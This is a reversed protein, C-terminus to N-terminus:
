VAIERLVFAVRRNLDDQICPDIALIEQAEDLAKMIEKSKQQCEEKTIKGEQFEKKNKVALAKQLDLILNGRFPSLGPEIINSFLLLETSLTIKRDLLDHDLDKLFYGPINGYLQFLGYKVELMHTNLPHLQTKHKEIFAEFDKPATKDLSMLEARIENNRTVIRQSSEKFDCNNEDCKWAAENRLPNESVLKGKKCKPCSFSGCYTGFETPDSCRECCCDFCKAQRIMLRRQITSQLPQAYSVSIIHGKPIDVTAIVSMQFDENFVHRTNPRCTHSMMSGLEYLGRIKIGDLRIEYSNTDLIGCVTMITKEDFEPMGLANQIFPVLNARIVFYLNSRMREEYHSELQM